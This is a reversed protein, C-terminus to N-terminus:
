LLSFFLVSCLEQMGHKRLTQACGKLLADVLQVVSFKRSITVRLAKILEVREFGPVAPPPIVISQRSRPSKTRNLLLNNHLAWEKVHAIEPTHLSLPCKCAPTHVSASTVRSSRVLTVPTDFALLVAPRGALRARFLSM